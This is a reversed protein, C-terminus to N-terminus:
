TKEWVSVHKTSESTFPERKWGGWRERLTMGALRAMLDLEGPGVSRFPISLREWRGDVLSFHHSVLRQTAADREDIGVHTDSLDFVELADRGGFGLEIVFCGGPDLHRAANEFCAVQEDQTTLNGITNFVLYVLSFRGDVRTTAFDGITVGIQEAGPKARLRAVMAESLDIGHVPVGRESLRLAVRGTGIGLELAAGEGALGALFDVTPGLVAPDFMDASGEDYRAAVDEGFYDEPM